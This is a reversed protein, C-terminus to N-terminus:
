IEISKTDYDEYILKELVSKPNDSGPAKIIIEDIARKKGDLMEFRCARLIDNMRDFDLRMGEDSIQSNCGFFLLMLMLMNRSIGDGRLLKSVLSYEEWNPNEADSDSLLVYFYFRNVLEFLKNPSLKAKLLCANVEERTLRAHRNPDMDSINSLPLDLYINRKEAKSIGELMYYDIQTSLYLCLYKCIYYRAKERGECFNRINESIYLVFEKDTDLTLLSQEATKTRAITYEIEGDSFSAKKVYEKIRELPFASYSGNMGSILLEDYMGVSELERLKSVLSQWEDFFLKKKFAWILTAEILDRSYLRNEGKEELRQNLTELDIGGLFGKYIIRYRLPYSQLESEVKNINFATGSAINKLIESQIENIKELSCLADRGTLGIIFEDFIVRKIRRGM